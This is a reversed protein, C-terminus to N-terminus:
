RLLRVDRDGIHRRDERLHATIGDAGARECEAAAFVPDPYTTGRANSTCYSDDQCEGTVPPPDPPDPPDPPTIIQGSDFGPAITSSEDVVTGDRGGDGASATRGGM